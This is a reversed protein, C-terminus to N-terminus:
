RSTRSRGCRLARYIAIAGIPVDERLLPVALITRHGSDSPWRTARRAFERGPATLDYVHIPKRDVCREVAHGLEPGIPRSTWFRGSYSEDHAAVTLYEGDRLTIIADYRGRLAAGATEVITDLVPQLDNPSRSIVNLVESTATQYELSEQLERTRAQVEEFLRVNEIAIM